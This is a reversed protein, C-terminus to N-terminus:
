QVCSCEAMWDNENVTKNDSKIKPVKPRWCSHSMMSASVSGLGCTFAQIRFSIGM